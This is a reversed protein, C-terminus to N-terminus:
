FTEIVCVTQTDNSSIGYIAAQTNVTVPVGYPVPIGTALTVGSNGIFVTAAGASAGNNYLTVAIRGTGAAGTRAAVILAASTGISAQTTALAASGVPNNNVGVNGITNSGASLAPLSALSVPQTAQWFTGTVAVTQGSWSVSLTPATGINFTPTALFAPLLGNPSLTVVLAPDTTAPATTAGKVAALSSSISPDGIVLRQRYVVLSESNTLQSLDFLKGAQDPPMGLTADTM